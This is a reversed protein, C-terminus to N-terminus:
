TLNKEANRADHYKRPCWRPPREMVTEV